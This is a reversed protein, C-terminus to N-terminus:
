VTTQILVTTGFMAKPQKWKECFENLQEEDEIELNM